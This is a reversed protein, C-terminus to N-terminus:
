NGSAKKNLADNIIQVLEEISTDYVTISKSKITKFTRAGKEGGKEVQKIEIRFPNNSKTLNM